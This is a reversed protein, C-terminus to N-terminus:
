GLLVEATVMWVHHDPDAFAAAYGWDQNGPETVIEAGARRARELVEDVGAEGTTSISLFCESSGPTAVDHEGSIWGFGGTPILMVSLGDNVVFQLPEPVGDDALEGIPELGLADRYFEFSTRRDATPLCVIVPAFNVITQSWSSETTDNLGVESSRV